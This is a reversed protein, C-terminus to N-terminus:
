STALLPVDSGRHTVVWGDYARLRYPVSLSVTTLGEHLTFRGCPEALRGDKTLWLEYYDQRGTSAELGRILVRMPWNGSDDEPLLEISGTAARDPGVGTMEIVAIAEVDRDGLLYGAGFAVAAVAAAVLAFAPRVRRWPRRAPREAPIETEVSPAARQLREPVEAPADVELLLEHMRRLRDREEPSLDGSGGVLDEFRDTV